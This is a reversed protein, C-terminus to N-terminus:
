QGSKGDGSQHRGASKRRTCPEAAPHITSRGAVARNRDATASQEASLARDREKTAAQEALTARDRELLAIHEAQKAHTAEWTSGITGAIFVIFVAATAAVLAKHRWAFKHLQYMASPPRATIPEDSLYRRIDEAM